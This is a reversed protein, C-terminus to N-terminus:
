KEYVTFIHVGDPAALDFEIGSAATRLNMQWDEAIAFEHGGPTLPHDWFHMRNRNNEDWDPNRQWWRALHVVGGRPGFNVRIIGRGGWGGTPDFGYYFRKRPWQRSAAGPAPEPTHIFMETDEQHLRRPTPAPPVIPQPVAVHGPAPAGHIGWGATSDFGRQSIDTSFSVHFHMTHPNAGRYVNWRTFDPSTIRRNFIIYGGPWLRPDRAAGLKRLHEVIWAADVGDKDVDRARVIGLGGKKLWPNHDSSRSAHAADGITGDSARDRRPWRANIEAALVM